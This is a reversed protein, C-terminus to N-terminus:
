TRAFLEVDGVIEVGAAKAKEVTWHPQPHTLPVGPSLLLASFRSWDAERLDVLPLGEAEAAARGKEGDDWCAVQAGGAILARAATLGTRALGFVALTRGEFGRVPIM